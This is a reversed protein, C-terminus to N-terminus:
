IKLADAIARELAVIPSLALVMDPRQGPGNSREEQASGIHRWFRGVAFDARAVIERTGRLPKPLRADLAEYLRQDLSGNAWMWHRDRLELEVQTVIEPHTEEFTYAATCLALVELYEAPDYGLLFPVWREDCENGGEFYESHEYPFMVNHVPAAAGERCADCPQGTTPVTHVLPENGRFGHRGASGFRNDILGLAAALTPVWDRPSAENRVAEVKPPAGSVLPEWNYDRPLVAACYILRKFRPSSRRHLAVGSLFTGLSHGVLHPPLAAHANAFDLFEDVTAELRRRGFTRAFLIAVAASGVLFLTLGLREHYLTVVVGLACAVALLWPAGVLWIGGWVPHRFQDYRKAEPQFFPQLRQGAAEMWPGETRIGHVLVVKNAAVTPKSKARPAM